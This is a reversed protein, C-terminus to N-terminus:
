HRKTASWVEQLTMAHVAYFLLMELCCPPMRFNMHSTTSNPFVRGTIYNTIKNLKQRNTNLLQQAHVSDVESAPYPQSIHRLISLRRQSCRCYSISSSHNHDCTGSELYIIVTVPTYSVQKVLIAFWRTLRMPKNLANTM